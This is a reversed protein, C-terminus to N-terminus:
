CALLRQLDHPEDCLDSPIQLAYAMGGKWQEQLKDEHKYVPQTAWVFFGGARLMRNVELLLIGDTAYREQLEEVVIPCQFIMWVLSEIPLDETMAGLMGDSNLTVGSEPHFKLLDVRAMAEAEAEAIRQKFIQAMEEARKNLIKMKRMKFGLKWGGNGAVLQWRQYIKM